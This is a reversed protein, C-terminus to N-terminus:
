EKYGALVLGAGWRYSGWGVRQLHSCSSYPDLETRSGRPGRLGQPCPSVPEALPDGALSGGCPITLM